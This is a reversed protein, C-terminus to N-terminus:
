HIGLRELLRTVTGGMIAAKDADTIFPLERFYRVSDAYTAVAKSPPYNSGWILRDPGFVDYLERVRPTVDDFPFPRRSLEAMNSLKMFVNPFKALAPVESWLAFPDYSPDRRVPRHDCALHEVLIPLGPHREILRALERPRAAFIATALGHEELLTLIRDMSGDEVWAWEAPSFIMFRLGAFKPYATLAALADDYPEVRPDLRGFVAAVADNRAGEFAYRNDNGMLSPTIDVVRDVGAARADRLLDAVLFQPGLNSGGPEWPREPTDPEWYHIHSDVIMLRQGRRVNM